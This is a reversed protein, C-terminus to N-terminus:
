RGRPGIRVNERVFKAMAEAKALHPALAEAQDRKLFITSGIAFREEPRISVSFGYKMDQSYTVSYEGARAEKRTDEKADKMAEWQKKTNQLEKGIVAAELPTLTLRETMMMQPNRLDFTLRDPALDLEIRMDGEEAVIWTFHWKKLEFSEAAAPKAPRAVLTLRRKSIWGTIKKGDKEVSIKVWDEQVAMAQLEAGAELTTLAEEGDQVPTPGTTVQVTDGPRISEGCLAVATCALLTVGFSGFLLRCRAPRAGGRGFVSAM